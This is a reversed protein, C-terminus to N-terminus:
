PRAKTSTLYAWLAQCQEPTSDYLPMTRPLQVKAPDLGARLLVCLSEADYRSPPGGRRRIAQTLHDAHLTPGFTQTTASPISPLAPPRTGVHCNICRTAQTPLPNEHGRILGPMPARGHYIAEGLELPTTPAAATAAPPAALPLPQPAPTGATTATATAAVGLAVGAATALSVLAWILGGRGAQPGTLGPRPTPKLLPM